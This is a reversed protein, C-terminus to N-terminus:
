QFYALNCCCMRNCLFLFVKAAYILKQVKQLHGRKDAKDDRANKAGSEATGNSPEEELDTDWAKIRLLQDTLSQFYSVHTLASLDAPGQAKFMGLKEKSIRGIIFLHLENGNHM